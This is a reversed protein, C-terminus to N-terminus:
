SSYAPPPRIHQQKNRPYQRQPGRPDKSGRDAKQIVGIETIVTISELRPGHHSNPEAQVACRKRWCYVGVASLVLLLFLSVAGIIMVLSSDESESATATEVSHPRASISNVQTSSVVIGTIGANRIKQNLTQTFGSSAGSPQNLYQKVAGISASSDVSFAVSVARRSIETIRVRDSTTECGEAIAAKFAQKLAKDFSTMSLGALTITVQLTSVVVVKLRQGQLCHNSRSCGLWMKGPRMLQLESGTSTALGLPSATSFDCANFAAESPFQYVDHAMHNFKFVITDSVAACIDAYRKVGWTGDAGDCMISSAGTSTPAHTPNETLAKTPNKTPNTTPRATPAHSPAATNVVLALKQGSSCHNGVSCALYFTGPTSATYAVPSTAGLLTASSFDCSDFAALSPLLHV